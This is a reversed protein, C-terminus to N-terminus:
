RGPPLHGGVKLHEKGRKAVDARPNAEARVDAVAGPFSEAGDHKGLHSTQHLAVHFVSLLDMVLRVRASPVMTIFTVSVIPRPCAM